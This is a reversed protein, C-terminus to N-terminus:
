RKRLRRTTTQGSPAVGSGAPTAHKKELEDAEKRAYAVLGIVDEYAMARVSDPPLKL